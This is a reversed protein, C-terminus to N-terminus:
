SRVYGWKKMVAEVEKKSAFKGADAEKLREQLQELQPVRWALYESLANTTVYALSRGTLRTYVDLQAKLTSPVRVNIQVDKTSM